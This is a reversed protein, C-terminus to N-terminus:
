ITFGLDRNEAIYPMFKLGLIKVSIDGYRIYLITDTINTLQRCDVVDKGGM